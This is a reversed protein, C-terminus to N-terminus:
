VNVAVRRQVDLAGAHAPSKDRLQESRALASVQSYAVAAAIDEPGNRLTTNTFAPRDTEYYNSLWQSWAAFAVAGTSSGICILGTFWGYHKWIRQRDQSDLRWWRMLM